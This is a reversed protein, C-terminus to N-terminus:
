MLPQRGDFTTKWQINDEMFPRINDFTTKLRLDEEMSPQRRNFITKKWLFVWRGDLTTKWQYDDEM